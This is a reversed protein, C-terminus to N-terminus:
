KVKLLLVTHLNAEYEKKSKAYVLIYEIFTIISLDLIAQISWEDIEYICIPFHDFWFVYYFHKIDM